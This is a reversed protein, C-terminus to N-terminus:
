SQVCKGTLSKEHMKTKQKHKAKRVDFYASEIWEFQINRGQLKTQIFHISERTTIM